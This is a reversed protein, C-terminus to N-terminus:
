GKKKDVYKEVEKMSVNGKLVVMQCDSDGTTILVIEQIRNGKQRTYVETLEGDGKAKFLEEYGEVTLKKVDKKFQQKVKSSCDDLNLVKVSSIHRLVKLEDSLKPAIMNVLGMLMSPVHVVEVKDKGQYKKFIGDINEASLQTLMGLM